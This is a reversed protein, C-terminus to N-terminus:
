SMDLELELEEEVDSSKFTSSKKIEKPKTTVTKRNAFLNAEEKQNTLTISYKNGQSDVCEVGGDVLRFLDCCVPDKNSEVIRATTMAVAISPSIGVAFVNCPINKQLEFLGDELCINLPSIPPSLNPSGSSRKMILTPTADVLTRSVGTSMRM